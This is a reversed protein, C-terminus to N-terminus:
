QALLTPQMMQGRVVEAINIAAPVTAIASPPALCKLNRQHWYPDEKKATRPKMEDTEMASEADEEIVSAGPGDEPADPIQLGGLKSQESLLQLAQSARLADAELQMRSLMQMQTDEFAHVLGMVNSALVVEAQEMAEAASEQQEPTAGSDESMSMSLAGLTASHNIDLRATAERLGIAFSEHEMEFRLQLRATSDSWARTLAEAPGDEYTKVVGKTSSPPLSSTPSSSSSSSSSSSAATTTSEADSAPSFSSELGLSQPAAKAGLHYQELIARHHLMTKEFLPYLPPPTYYHVESSEDSDPPLPKPNKPLQKYWSSAGSPLQPRPYLGGSKKHLETYDLDYDEVAPESGSRRRKGTRNTGGGALKPSSSSSLKPSRSDSYEFGDDHFEAELQSNVRPSYSSGAGSKGTSSASASGRGTRRQKSTLTASGVHAAAAAAAAAAAKSPKRGNGGTAADLASRAKTGTSRNARDRGSHNGSGSGGVRPTCEAGGAVGRVSPTGLTVDM